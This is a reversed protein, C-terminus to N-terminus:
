TVRRRRPECAPNRLPLQPSPCAAPSARLAAVSVDGAAVRHARKARTAASCGSRATGAFRRLSAPNGAPAVASRPLGLATSRDAPHATSRRRRSRLRRSLDLRHEAGPPRWQLRRHRLHMFGCRRLTGYARRAGGRTRVRRRSRRRPRPLPPRGPPCEGAGRPDTRPADDAWGRRGRRADSLRRAAPRARQGGHSSHARNGAVQRDAKLAGTAETATSHSEMHKCRM